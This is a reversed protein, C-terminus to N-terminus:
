QKRKQTALVTCISASAYLIAHIIGSHEKFAFIPLYDGIIAVYLCGLCLVGLFVM